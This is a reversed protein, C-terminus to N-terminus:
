GVRVFDYRAMTERALLGAGARDGITEVVVIRDPAAFDVEASTGRKELSELIFRDLAREAEPSVIEGKHGRRELRV